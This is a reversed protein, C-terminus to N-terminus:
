VKHYVGDEDVTVIGAELLPPIFTRQLISQVLATDAKITANNFVAQNWAQEPKGDLLKIAEQMPSLGTAAAKAKPAATAVGEVGMLEWCDIPREAKTQGDWVMHGPLMKMHVTKGILYDQGKVQDASADKALGANILKDVSAGFYGMKTKARNNHAIEVQAIPALYPETSEIVEVQDFNYLIVLYAGRQGSRMTGAIDTLRGKFERLPSQPFGEEFGRTKLQALVEEQSVPVADSM